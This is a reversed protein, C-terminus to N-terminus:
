ILKFPNWYSCSKIYKKGLGNIFLQGLRIHCKDIDNSISKHQLHLTFDLTVDGLLNFVICFNFVIFRFPENVCQGLAVGPVLRPGGQIRAGCFVGPYRVEGQRVRVPM